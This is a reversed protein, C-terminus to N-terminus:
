PKFDRWIGGSAAAAVAVAAPDRHGRVHFPSQEIQQLTIRIISFGPTAASFGPSASFYISGVLPYGPLTVM